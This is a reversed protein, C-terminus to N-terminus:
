KVANALELNHLRKVMKNSKITSILTRQSIVLALQLAQKNERVHM